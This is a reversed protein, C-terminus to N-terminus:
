FLGELFNLLFFLPASLISVSLPVTLTDIGRRSFAEVLASISGAFASLILKGILPLPSFILLAILAGATGALAGALTGELTKKGDFWFHHLRNRGYKKGVLASTADGFGWSMVGVAIIFRYGEGSIGWFLIILVSLVILIFIIQTPIESRRSSRKVATIPPAKFKELIIILFFALILISVISLLASYWTSFFLLIILISLSAFIHYSKRIPERKPESLLSSIVAIPIAFALYYGVLIGFAILDHQLDM